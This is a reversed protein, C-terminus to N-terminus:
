GLYYSIRTRQTIFNANRHLKIKYVFVKIENQGKPEVYTLPLFDLLSIADSPLNRQSLYFAGGILVEHFYKPVNIDMPSRLIIAM